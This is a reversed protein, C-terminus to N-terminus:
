NMECGAVCLRKLASIKSSTDKFFFWKELGQRLYYFSFASEFIWIHDLSCFQSFHFMQIWGVTKDM